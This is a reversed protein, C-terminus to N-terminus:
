GGHCGKCGPRASAEIYDNAYAAFTDSEVNTWSGIEAETSSALLTRALQEVSM